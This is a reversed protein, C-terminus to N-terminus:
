KKILTKDKKVDSVPISYNDAYRLLSLLTSIPKEINNNLVYPLLAHRILYLYKEIDSYGRYYMVLAM